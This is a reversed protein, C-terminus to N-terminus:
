MVLRINMANVIMKATVGGREMIVAIEIEYKLGFPVIVPVSQSRDSVSVTAVGYPKFGVSLSKKVSLNTNSDLTSCASLFLFCSLFLLIKIRIILKGM